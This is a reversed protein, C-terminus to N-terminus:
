NAEVDTGTDASPETYELLLVESKATKNHKRNDIFIFLFATLFAIFLIGLEIILLLMMLSFLEPIDKFCWVTILLSIGATGVMLFLKKYKIEKFLLEFGKLSVQSILFSSFIVMLGFVVQLVGLLIM